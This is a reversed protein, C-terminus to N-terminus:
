GKRKERELKALRQELELRAHRLREVMDREKALSQRLKELELPDDDPSAATEEERPPPIGAEPAVPAAPRAGALRGVAHLLQGAMELLERHMTVLERDRILMATILSELDQRPLQTEARTIEYRTATEDHPNADPSGRTVLPEGNLRLSELEDRVSARSAGRAFMSSILKFVQVADDPHRRSRGAGDTPIHEAFISRYYRLTSEPVGTRRAIERISLPGNM